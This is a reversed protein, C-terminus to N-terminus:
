ATAEEADERHVGLYAEIVQRNARVEQPPGDAIVKGENMVIVRESVTMVVEMDHEILLFTTGLDHRLTRMHELLELGLSPNVGAMPEDLMVMTPSSMLARAFELLKRQGGSLTLAYDDALADLRVIKLMEQARRRVAEERSRVARPTTLVRWLREGPQGPAALMVNDLVTMRALAKTIQFTRVLGRQAIRHPPQGDIRQGGFRITGREPRYFGSILNFLTTKGAGNPGILATVSGELVDLTAGDVAAVGGFHRVLGEVELIRPKASESV